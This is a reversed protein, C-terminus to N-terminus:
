DVTAVKFGHSVAPSAIPRESRSRAPHLTPPANIMRHVVSRSRAPHLTPPATIIRHRCLMIVGTPLHIM